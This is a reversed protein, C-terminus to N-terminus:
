GGNPGGTRFSRLDRVWNDLQPKGTPAYGNLRVRDSASYGATADAKKSSASKSSSFLREIATPEAKAPKATEAFAATTALAAVAFVTGTIMKHM